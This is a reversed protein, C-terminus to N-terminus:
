RRRFHKGLKTEVHVDLGSRRGEPRADALAARLSDADSFAPISTWVRGLERPAHADSGGVVPLGRAEAWEFAEEGDRRRLNRANLAEVADIEEAIAEMAETGLASSRFVDFPHAAAVVAGQARLRAVTEAASLGPPVTESVFLGIIDGEASSVEEGVVVQFPPDLAVLELAGELSNHDTIAVADLGADPVLEVLSAPEIQGDFSATTHVHMDIRV